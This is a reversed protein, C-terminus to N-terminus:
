AHLGCRSFERLRAHNGSSEAIRLIAPTACPYIAGRRLCVPRDNGSLDRSTLDSDHYVSELDAQHYLDTTTNHDFTFARELQGQASDGGATHRRGGPNERPKPKLRRKSLVVFRNFLRAPQRNLSSRSKSM